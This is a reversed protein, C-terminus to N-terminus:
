RLRPRSHGFIHNGFHTMVLSFYEVKFLGHDWGPRPTLRSLLHVGQSLSLLLWYFNGLQFEWSKFMQNYSYKHKDSYGLTFWFTVKSWPGQDYKDFM